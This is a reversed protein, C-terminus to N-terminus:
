HFTKISNKHFTCKDKIVPEGPDTNNQESADTMTIQQRYRQRRAPRGGPAHATPHGVSGPPGTRNRKTLAVCGVRM